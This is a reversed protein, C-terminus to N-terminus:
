LQPVAGPDCRIRQRWVPRLYTDPAALSGCRSATLDDGIDDDFRMAERPRRLPGIPAAGVVLMMAM